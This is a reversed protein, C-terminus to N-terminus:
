KSIDNKILKSFANAVHISVQRWHQSYQPTADKFDFFEDDTMLDSVLKLKKNSFLDISLNASM